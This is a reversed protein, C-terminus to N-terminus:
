AAATVPVTVSAVPSPGSEGASNRARVRIRVSAGPTLAVDAVTDQVTTVAEFAGDVGTAVEVVYSDGRLSPLWSLRVRGPLGPEAVLASVAEPSRVDAPVREVLDLWRPDEPPLVAEVEKRSNRMNDKLTKHSTDRAERKARQGCKATNLAAVAGEMATIYVGAVQPTVSVAANQQTPNATFYAQLARLINLIGATNSEPIRLTRNTFGAQAWRTSWKEGLYTRLNTRAKEIYFVATSRASLLNNSMSLTLSRATQFALETQRANGLDSNVSSQSFHVLNLSSTHVGLGGVWKAAKSFLLSVKM